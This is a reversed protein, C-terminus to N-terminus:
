GPQYARARNCHQGFALSFIGRLHLRRSKLHESL